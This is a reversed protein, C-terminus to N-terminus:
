LRLSVLHVDRPPPEEKAREYLAWGANGVFVLQGDVISGTAADSMAEHGQALATARATGGDLTIRVVRLPAIGNQVGILAGQHLHLDDIGFLTTDDAARLLTARKSAVDISWIGNAYDSVYLTRGDPTFALGQLSGFEASELWPEIAAAGPAVRWVVPSSSDTAFLSGDAGFRLSGLVHEGGARPLQLSRRFAGTALDFEALYAWGKESAANFDKTVGVASVGAWLAGHSEDIALGFVGLLGDKEGSFRTLTGDAARRWICRQRVDGFYWRGQSDVVASEIIGTQAPLTQAIAVAGRPAANGAFQAALATFDPQTGLAALGPDKAINGALGRAAASRLSALADDTRGAAAYARALATLIRPYDPRLARVAELKEIVLAVNGAKQADGAERLLPRYAPEAWLVATAALAIVLTVLVRTHVRFHLSHHALLM